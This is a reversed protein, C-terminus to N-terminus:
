LCIELMDTERQLASSSVYDNGTFAHMGVMSKKQRDTLDCLCLELFKRNKESGNDILIQVNNELDM